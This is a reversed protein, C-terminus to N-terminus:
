KLWIMTSVLFLVAAFSVVSKEYGTAIRRYHKINNIFREVL